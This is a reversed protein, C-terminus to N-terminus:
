EYEWTCREGALPVTIKYVKAVHDALLQLVGGKTEAAPGM